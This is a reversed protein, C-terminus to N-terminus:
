LRVFLFALESSTVFSYSGDKFAPQSKSRTCKVKSGLSNTNGAANVLSVRANSTGNVTTNNNNNNNNNNNSSNLARSSVDEENSWMNAKAATKVNAAYLKLDVLGSAASVPSLISENDSFNVVKRDSLTRRAASSEGNTLNTLLSATQKKIMNASKTLSGSSPSTTSPAASTSPYAANRPASCSGCTYCKRGSSSSIVKIIKKSKDDADNAKDNHLQETQNMNEIILNFKADM